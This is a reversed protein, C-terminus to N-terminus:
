AGFSEVYKLLSERHILRRGRVNGAVRVSHSKVAGSTILAYLGTRSISVLKSAQGVSLFIPPETTLPKSTETQKM